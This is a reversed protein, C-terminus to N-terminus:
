HKNVIEYWITKYQFNVSFTKYEGQTTVPVQETREGKNNLAWVEIENSVKLKITAPVGEVLTPAQGWSNACTIEGNYRKIQTLDLSGQVLINGTQYERIVSGNNTTYGTAVLLLSNWDNFSIGVMVTLSIVSWSGLLTRRPEIVVNGFSYSKGGGFGIVAVSKSANVLLVGDDPSSINWVLDGNDSSYVPGAVNVDYHSLMNEPEPIGEALVVTRYLLPASSPVGLTGGDVLTWATARGRAIYNIEDQKKLSVAVLESAPKVDGRIFIMYAPILTAMKVPHQDCDFYGRIMKSNWNGRSGYDFLFLGDWDQLAAYSALTIVTEADYMNPSPHNYETVFHPKGYVRKAALSSITSANLSNVMPKNVVYWNNPDWSVGPFSPHQWYAHTDVVDMQAMINPTSCGVITGIILSKINLDEKLYKRFETFYKEELGYLFRVWDRRANLTRGGFENLTFIRISSLELSEDEKILYGKFPTMSFCAFQYTTATTGLNTIDLRANDDSESVVLPVEFDNWETTLTISAVNSLTSWPEHAQRLGVNITVQKDARARFRVLYSEEAVVFLSPYNFQVHWGAAGTRTVTIRLNNIAETESTVEYSASTDPQVEIIWGELDHTFYGNTLMEIQPLGASAQWSGILNTTSGYKNRLFLNWEETLKDIFVRPLRDLTGGLWGQILGQENVIEVFAIAPDESYSLGTYPNYHTLLQRAYEKQLEGVEDLFFGLVQQDKWDVSNIDSPLSDVSTLRRSVLLNLDVYIGNKKLESIFYDLRDLAGENLHRTDGYSRDFINFSEWSADMHHFRVVNVGYKALRSAIKEAEDKEPFVASGCINVGLFKIREGGVYLHGDTSAHVWGLRGAPKDLYHSLSTITNESDDWPLYFPFMRQEPKNQLITNAIFAAM